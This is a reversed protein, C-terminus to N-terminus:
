VEKYLTWKRFAKEMRRGLLWGVRHMTVGGYVMGM